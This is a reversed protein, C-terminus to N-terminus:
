DQGPCLRADLRCAEKLEAEGEATQGRQQLVHGLAFHADARDPRRGIVRRYFQMAGDLDKRRELARAMNFYAETFQPGLAIAKRFETVARDVEGTELFAAGLSNHAAPSKPAYKVALRFQRVAGSWDAKGAARMGLEYYRAALPHTEASPPQEPPGPQAGTGAQLLTLFLLLVQMRTERPRKSGALETM